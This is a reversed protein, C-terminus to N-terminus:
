VAFIKEKEFKQWISKRLSSTPKREQWMKIGIQLFFFKLKSKQGLLGKFTFYSKEFCHNSSEQIIKSNQTRVYDEKHMQMEFVDKLTQGSFLAITM